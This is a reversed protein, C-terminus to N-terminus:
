EGTYNILKYLAHWGKNGEVDTHPEEVTKIDFGDKHKLDAIRQTLSTGPPFDFATVGGNPWAEVLKKLIRTKLSM